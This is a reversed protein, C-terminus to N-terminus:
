SFCLRFFFGFVRNYLGPILEIQFTLHRQICWKAQRVERNSILLRFLGVFGTGPGLALFTALGVGAPSGALTWRLNDLSGSLLEGMLFVSINSLITLLAITHQPSSFITVPRSSSSLFAFIITSLTVMTSVIFLFCYICYQKWKPDLVIGRPDISRASSINRSTSEIAESVSTSDTVHSETEHVRTPTEGDEQHSEALTNAVSTDARLPAIQDTQMLPPSGRYSEVDYTVTEEEPMALSENTEELSTPPRVRMETAIASPSSLSTLQHDEMRNTLRESCDQFSGYIHRKIDWSSSVTDFGFRPPGQEISDYSLLSM